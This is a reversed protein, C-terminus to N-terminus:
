WTAETVHAVAGAQRMAWAARLILKLALTRTQFGSRVVASVANPTGVTSIPDPDDDWHIVADRSATVAPVDAFGSAFAEPRIAVLTGPALSPTPFVEFAPNPGPAMIGLSVAQVPNSFLLFRSAGAEAMAGALAQLDATMAAQDGGATGTIATVGNLLGAPRVASAAADSFLSADLARAASDEMLDQVIAEADEAALDRLEETIGAISALKKPPGISVTGLTGRGAPIPEGEAVRTPEPFDATSAPLGITAVGSMDVRPSRSFLEAAASRSRLSGLFAGVRVGALSGGWGTTSAPEVVARIITDVVVGGDHGYLREAEENITRDTILSMAQVTAARRWDRLPDVMPLDSPLFPRNM